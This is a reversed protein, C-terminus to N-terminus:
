DIFIKQEGLLLIMMAKIPSEKLINKALIFYEEANDVKGEKLELAQLLEKNAVNKNQGVSEWFNKLEQSNPIDTLSALRALENSSFTNKSFIFEPLNEFGVGHKTPQPLEFVADGNAKAYNAGGMRAVLDLKKYDLYKGSFMEEQIHFMVVEGVLLNGSGPLGGLELYHILKCEMVLPSEAVGCPKVITSPYKTLGSKVFEDVGHPYDTSALSMQEVMSFSVNSVTFEKTALINLLTDKAKGDTGRFAPSIAIVPPNAGFANFFSFPALNDNGELDQTGVFAIPRPSVGSLLIKHSESFHVEKPNVTRYATNM